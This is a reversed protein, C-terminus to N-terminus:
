FDSITNNFEIRTASKEVFDVQYKHTRTFVAGRTLEMKLICTNEDTENIHLEYFSSFKEKVIERLEKNEEKLPNGLNVGIGVAQFLGKCVCIKNNQLIDIMKQTKLYTVTYLSGDQYFADIIRVMPQDNSSTALSIEVDNGLKEELVKVAEEYYNMTKNEKHLEEIVVVMM